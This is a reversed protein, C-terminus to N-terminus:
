YCQCLSFNGILMQHKEQFCLLQGSGAKQAYCCAPSSNLSDSRSPWLNGEAGLSVEMVSVGPQGVNCRDM